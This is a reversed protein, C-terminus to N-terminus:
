EFSGGIHEASVCCEPLGCGSHTCTSRGSCQHKRGHLYIPYPIPQPTKVAAVELRHLEVCLCHFADVQSTAGDQYNKSRDDVRFGIASGYM